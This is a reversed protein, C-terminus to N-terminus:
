RSWERRHIRMRQEVCLSAKHLNTVFQSSISEDVCRVVIHRDPTYSATDKFVGLLQKASNVQKLACAEADGKDAFLRTCEEAAFAASRRFFERADEYELDVTLYIVDEESRAASTPNLTMAVCILICVAATKM